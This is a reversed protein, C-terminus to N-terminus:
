CCLRALTVRGEMKVPAKRYDTPLIRRFSLHNLTGENLDTRELPQAPTNELLRLSYTFHTSEGPQLSEKPGGLTVNWANRESALTYTMGCGKGPIIEYGRGMGTSFAYFGTSDGEAPAALIRYQKEESAAFRNWNFDQEYTIHCVATGCSITDM